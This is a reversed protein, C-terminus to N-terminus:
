TAPVAYLVGKKKIRELSWKVLKKTDSLIDGVIGDVAASILMDDIDNRDAMNVICAGSIALIALDVFQRSISMHYYGMPQSFNPKAQLRRDFTLQTDILHNNGDVMFDLRIHQSFERIPDAEVERMFYILSWGCQLCIRGQKPINKTESGCKPCKLPGSHKERRPKEAQSPTPQWIPSSPEDTM